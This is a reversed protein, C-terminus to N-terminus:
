RTIGYTSTTGAGATRQFRIHTVAAAIADNSAVTVPGDPWNEYTTGGDLSYSVTITDGAAPVVWVAAGIRAGAMPVVVANGNVLTGSAFQSGAIAEVVHSAGAQGAQVWSNGDYVYEDGTDSEMWRAMAQVVNSSAYTSREAATGVLYPRGGVTLATTM